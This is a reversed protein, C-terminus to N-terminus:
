GAADDVYDERWWVTRGTPAQIAARTMRITTLETKRSPM